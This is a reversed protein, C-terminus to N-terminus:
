RKPGPPIYGRNFSHLILRNVLRAQQYVLWPSDARGLDTKVCSFIPGNEGNRPLSM